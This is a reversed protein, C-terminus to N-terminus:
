QSPVVTILAVGHLPSTAEFYVARLCVAFVVVVRRKDQANWRAGDSEGSM